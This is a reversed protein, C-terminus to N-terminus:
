KDDGLEYDLEQIKDVIVELNSNIFDLDSQLRELKSLISRIEKSIKEKTM